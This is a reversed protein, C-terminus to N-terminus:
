AWISVNIQHHPIFNVYVSVIRQGPDHPTAKHLTYGGMSVFRWLRYGLSSLGGLQLQLADEVERANCRIILANHVIFSRMGYNNVADKRSIM